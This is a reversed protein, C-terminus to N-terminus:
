TSGGVGHGRLVGGTGAGDFFYAQSRENYSEGQGPIAM